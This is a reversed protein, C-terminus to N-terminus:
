TLGDISDSWDIKDVSLPIELLMKDSADASFERPPDAMPWSGVLKAVRSESGDPATMVVNLTLKYDAAFGIKGTKAQYVKNRWRLIAGYVDSDVFDYLSLNGADVTVHGAVKRVENQYPVEIVENQQTPITFGHLGMIILDRDVGGLPIEVSFNNQRQPEFAGGAAAIHDAAQPNQLAM